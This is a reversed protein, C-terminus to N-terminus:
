KEIELREMLINYYRQMHYYQKSLLEKQNENLEEEFKPSYIFKELKVIKDYLENKEVELREIFTSM